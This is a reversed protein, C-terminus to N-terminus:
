LRSPFPAHSGDVREDALRDFPQLVKAEDAAAALIDVIEGTVVHQVRRDQAARDGMAADASDVYRTCSFHGAHMRDDGRGIETICDRQNRHSQLRHRLELGETLRDHRAVLHAIDALRQGHHEGVAGANGLIREASDFDVDLRQRGNRGPLDRRFVFRQQEFVFAAVDRHFEASHKAVGRRCEFVCGIRPALTEAGLAVGRQGHLRAAQEGFPIRRAPPQRQRAGCLHQEGVAADQCFLETEGDIGDVHDLVVDAAAKTRAALEIRLIKQNRERRAVDAARHFPGLVAALMQHGNVVGALRRAVDLDGARAIAGDEPQAAMGEDVHAGIHAGVAGDARAVDRLEHRPRIANGIDIEVNREQQGVLRRDAGIAPWAPELGIKEALAQEVHRRAIKADVLDLEAPAIEDAFRLHRVRDRADRRKRALVLEVAAIILDRELAAEGFEAPGLLFLEFALQDVAAIVAERHAAEDFAAGRARFLTRTQHQFGVARQGNIHARGADALPQLRRERLDGGVGHVHRHIADILHEVARRSIDAVAVARIVRARDDHAARGHKICRCFQPHGHARLRRPSEIAAGGLDYEGVAAGGRGVAFRHRPRLQRRLRERDFARKGIVLVGPGIARVGGM